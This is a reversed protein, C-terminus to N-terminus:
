RGSIRVRQARAFHYDNTRRKRDDGGPEHGCKAQNRLCNGRAPKGDVFRMAYDEVAQLVAQM